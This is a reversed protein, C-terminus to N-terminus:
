TLRCRWERPQTLSNYVHNLLTCVQRHANNAATANPYSSGLDPAAFQIVYASGQQFRLLPELLPPGLTPDITMIAPWASYLQEVPNVRRCDDMLLLEVYLPWSFARM